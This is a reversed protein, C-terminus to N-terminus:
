QCRYCAPSPNRSYSGIRVRWVFLSRWRCRVSTPEGCARYPPLLHISLPSSCLPFLPGHYAVNCPRSCRCHFTAFSLSSSPQQCGDAKACRCPVQHHRHDCHAPAHQPHPPQTRGGCRSRGVDVVAVWFYSGSGGFKAM